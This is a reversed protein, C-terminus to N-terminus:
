LSRRSRLGDGDFRRPAVWQTARGRAIELSGLRVVPESRRLGVDKVNAMYVPDPPRPLAEGRRSEM